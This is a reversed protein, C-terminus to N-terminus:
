VTGMKFALLYDQTRNRHRNLLYHSIKQPFNTPVYPNEKTGKYKADRSTWAAYLLGKPFNKNDM